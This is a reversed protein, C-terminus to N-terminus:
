CDQPERESRFVWLQVKFLFLCAIIIDLFSLLHMNLRISVVSDETHSLRARAGRLAVFDQQGLQGEGLGHLLIKCASVAICCFV